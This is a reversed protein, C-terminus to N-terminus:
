ESKKERFSYAFEKDPVIGMSISFRNSFNFYSATFIIEMIQHDDFGAERLADVHRKEILEPSKTLEYAFDCLARQEATLECIRYNYTLLEVWASDCGMSRLSYAHTTLCLPCKNVTSVVVGIMEKDINSVYGANPDFLGDAFVWWKCFLDPNLPLVKFMNPTFGNIQNQFALVGDITERQQDTFEEECPAKLYSLGEPFKESM